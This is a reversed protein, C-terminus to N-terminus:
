TLTSYMGASHAMLGKLLLMKHLSAQNSLSSSGHMQSWEEMLSAIFEPGNDMRIRKPKERKKMLHNLVCVVRKSKLSFDVEIHLAERNYDDLVHFSRFRRGNMLTDSMFDISWTHNREVPVQLPQQVRAPLRKKAKRRINLGIAKYIRHVRKHNWDHGEGSCGALPKGFAKGPNSRPKRDFLLRWRNM